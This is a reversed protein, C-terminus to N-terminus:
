AGIVSSLHLRHNFAFIGRLEVQFQGDIKCMRRMKWSAKVLTMLCASAVSIVTDVRARSRWTQTMMESLPSPKGIPLAFVFLPRPKFLWLRRAWDMPAVISQCDLVFPVCTVNVKGMSLAVGGPFNALVGAPHNASM